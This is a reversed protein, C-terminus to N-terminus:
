EQKTKDSDHCQFKADSATIIQSESFYQQRQKSDPVAGAKDGKINSVGLPTNQGAYDLPPSQTGFSKGAASPM